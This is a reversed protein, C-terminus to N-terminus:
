PLDLDSSLPLQKPKPLALLGQRQVAGLDVVCRALRATATAHHKPDKEFGIFDRGLEICAAGTTGSGAHSDLVLEGPDTFDTVLARMLWIPKQCPHVRPIGSEQANGRYVAAKGGGNWRLRGAQRAAHAIVIEETGTAPRDGSMQPMADAKVYTGKRVYEGGAAEISDVWVGFSLEDCFIIIWRNATRCYEVALEQAVERTLHGFSLVDRPKIGDARGEMGLRRHVRDSFPPDVIIHGVSKEPMARMGEICDGLHLTWTM